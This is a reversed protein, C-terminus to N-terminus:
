RINSSPSATTRLLRESRLLAGSFFLLAESEQRGALILHSETQVCFFWKWKNFSQINGLIQLGLRIKKTLRVCETELFVFLFLFFTHKM